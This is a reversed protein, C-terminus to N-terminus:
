FEETLKLLYSLYVLDNSLLVTDDAQGIAGITLKGLPVGLSSDQALTLQLKGFIEYFESSSIGGQELGQQDNIPGM